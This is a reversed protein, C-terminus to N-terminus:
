RGARSRDILDCVSEQLDAYSKPGDGLVAEHFDALDFDNGLAAEAMAREKEFWRRGVYYAHAQGPWAVARQIESPDDSLMERQKAEATQLDWGEGNIGLDLRGMRLVHLYSRLRRAVYWPGEEIGLDAALGEAYMAYGEVFPLALVSYRLLAPMIRPDLEQQLALQQHHGVVGEHLFLRPIILSPYEGRLPLNFKGPTKGDRSPLSYSPANALAASSDDFNIEFRAKPVRNFILHRKSLVREAVATYQGMVEQATELQWGPSDMRKLFDRMSAGRMSTQKKVAELAVITEDWEEKFIDITKQVDANTDYTYYQLLNNYQQEGDPLAWMGLHSNDRCQPLYEHSVFEYLEEYAPEIVELVIEAHKDYDGPTIGRKLSGSAILQSRIFTSAVEGVVRGLQDITMEAVLRSQTDHKKVGERMNAIARYIWGALAHYREHAQDFDAATNISYKGYGSEDLVSRFPLSAYTYDLPRLWATNQLLGQRVSLEMAFRGAIHRDRAWRAETFPRLQRFADAYIGATDQRMEPDISHPDLVGSVYDPLRHSLGNVEFDLLSNSHVLRATIEDTTEQLASSMCLSPEVAYELVSM